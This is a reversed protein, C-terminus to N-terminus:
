KAPRIHIVQSAKISMQGEIGHKNGAENVLLQVKWHGKKKKIDAEVIKVLESNLEPKLSKSPVLQMIDGVQIAGVPRCARHHGARWAKAECEASCYYAMNCQSCCKMRVQGFEEQSKGCCDCAFGGVELRKALDPQAAPVHCSFVEVEHFRYRLIVADNWESNTEAATVKLAALAVTLEVKLDPLLSSVSRYKPPNENKVSACIFKDKEKYSVNGIFIAARRYCEASEHQDGKLLWFVGLGKWAMAQVLNLERSDEAIKTLGDFDAKTATGCCQLSHVYLKLYGFKKGNKTLGVQQLFDDAGKRFKAAVESTMNYHHVPLKMTSM